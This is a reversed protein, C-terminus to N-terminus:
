ASDAPPVIPRGPAGVNQPPYEPTNMSGSPCGHSTALLGTHTSPGSPEVRSCQAERSRHLEPRRDFEAALGCRAEGHGFGDHRRHRAPLPRLDGHRDIPERVPRGDRRHAAPEQDRERRSRRTAAPTAAPSSTSTSMSSSVAGRSIATGASRAAASSTCGEARARNSAIDNVCRRSCMSAISAAFVSAVRCRLIVFATSITSAASDDSHGFRGISPHGSSIKSRTWHREAAAEDFVPMDPVAFGHLAPYTEITHEVGAATLTAELREAQEPPFSGDNEAAAIYVRGEIDGVVTHPSDPRRQRAPWRPLVGCRRRTPHHAAATLSLGGGMCYGTTGVRDGASPTSLYSLLAGADSAAMEKTVSMVMSMLRKREDPDTFVTAPDFPRYGGYRYYTEPLFVVYGLAAMREAMQVMAPRVGGADMFMIVAPWPGDGTPTVVVAPCMGDPTPVSVESRPM